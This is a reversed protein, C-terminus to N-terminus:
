RARSEPQWGSKNDTCAREVGPEASCFFQKPIDRISPHVHFTIEISSAKDTSFDIECVECEGLRPIDGLNRAEERVGRCHPCIIDWSMQLLGQRTAHLFLRLLDAEDIGWQRALPKLQIRYLELPDGTTVHRVLEDLAQALQPRAEVNMHQGLDSQISRVRDNVHAPIADPEALMALPRLRANADAIQEVLKDLVRKFDTKLRPIGIRLIMAGLFSRPIWGFYAYFRARHEDLSVLHFVGRSCHVWGGATSEYM